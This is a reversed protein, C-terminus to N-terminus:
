ESKPEVVRGVFLVSGTNRDRIVFFFPHDAKFEKPPAPAAGADMVVATAAAAETGEENVDVYAKHIVAGIYLEHSGDMGSFDAKGYVFADKMGMGSLVDRLGFESTMKFKPLSVAVRESRLKGIWEEVKAATLVEEVKGLGDTEKPLVIVMSLGSEAAAGRAVPAGGTDGQRMKELGGGAPERRPRGEMGSRLKKGCVECVGKERACKICMKCAVSCQAKKCVPCQQMTDYNAQLKAKCEPSCIMRGPMITMPPQEGGAAEATAYPLELVQVGDGEWYKFEKTQNMMPATTKKGEAVTFEGDRTQKAEFPYEWKGKFYIANTLVLRTAANLVGPKILERIKDKTEKEVWANIAKRAEETAGAFDLNEVGAGYNGRVLDFYEKRFAYDKQAWLANAVSLEYGGNAKAGGNLTGILGKYAGHLGEQGLDFHMAKAMEAETNGRAGAYTMALATSISYPSLFLNGEQGKLKGYVEFAFANNGEILTKPLREEANQGWPPPPSLAASEHRWVCAAMLGAAVLVGMVVRSRMAEGGDSLVNEIRSIWHMVNGSVTWHRKM